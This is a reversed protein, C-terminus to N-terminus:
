PTESIIEGFKILNLNALLAFIPGDIIIFLILWNNKIPTYYSTIIALYVAVVATGIFFIFLGLWEIKELNQIIFFTAAAPLIGLYYLHFKNLLKNM